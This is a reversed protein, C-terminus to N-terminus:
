ALICASYMITIEECLSVGSVFLSHYSLLCVGSDAFIFIICSLFSALMGIVIFMKKNNLIDSGIGIPIRLLFQMIGYSGLVIGIFTYSIGKASMYPSLIPVDLFHPFWLLCCIIMFIVKNRHIHM